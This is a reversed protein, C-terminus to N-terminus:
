QATASQYGHEERRGGVRHLERKQKGFAVVIIDDLNRSDAQMTIKLNAKIFVRQQVMGMYTIVLMRASSPLNMLHFKGDVDTVTGLKTGEVRVSAGTIPQGDDAAIVVGSVQKVQAFACSFSFLFCTFLMLIRKDM